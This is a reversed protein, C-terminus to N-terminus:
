SRAEEDRATAYFLFLACWVGKAIFSDVSDRGGRGPLEVEDMRVSIEEPGRLRACSTSCM